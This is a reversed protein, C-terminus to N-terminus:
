AKARGHWVRTTKMFRGNKLSDAIDRCAQAQLEMLRLFRFILDSNKLKDAM